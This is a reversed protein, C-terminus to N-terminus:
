RWLSVQGSVVRIFRHIYGLVINSLIKEYYHTVLSWLYIIDFSFSMINTRVFDERM